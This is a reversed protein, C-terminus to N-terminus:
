YEKIKKYFEIMKMPIQNSGQRPDFMNQKYLTNSAVLIPFDVIPSLKSYNEENTMKGAVYFIQRYSNGSLGKIKLEAIESPKVGKRKLIRDANIEELHDVSNLIKNILNEAM